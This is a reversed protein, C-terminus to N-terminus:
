SARRQALAADYGKPGVDLLLNHKMEYLGGLHGLDGHKRPDYAEPTVGPDRKNPKAVLLRDLQSVFNALRPTNARERPWDERWYADLVADLIEAEPRGTNAANAILWTVVRRASTDDRAPFSGGRHAEFHARWRSCVRDRLTAEPPDPPPPPEGGVDQTRRGADQTQPDGTIDGTVPATVPPSQAQSTVADRARKNAQNEAKRAKEKTWEDATVNHDAYDHFSWGAAAHVWLQLAVLEAAAKDPRGRTLQEAVARSVHGDTMQDVTYSLARTWLALAADGCAMAKPHRWFRGALRAYRDKTARRISM